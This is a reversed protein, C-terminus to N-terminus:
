KMEIQRYREPHEGTYVFIDGPTVSGVHPGFEVGLKEYAFAVVASCIPWKRLMWEQGIHTTFWRTHSLCDGLQLIVDGWGYDNASFRCAEAVLLRRQLVTVLMDRIIWVHQASAISDALMRTKVRWLAEIVAPPEASIVMGVHSVISHTAQCIGDSFWGSGRIALIDGSLVEVAEGSRAIVLRSNIKASKLAM